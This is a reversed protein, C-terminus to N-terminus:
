RVSRRRRRYGATPAPGTRATSKSRSGIAWRRCGASSSTTTAPKGASWSGRSGQRRISAPLDTSPLGPRTSRTVAVMSGTMDGYWKYVWFAGTPEADLAQGRGGAKPAILDSLRGPKHWFALDATDVKARELRAVFRALAGPVGVDRPSAYENISIPLPGIGLDTEMQRYAAVHLALDNEYRPDREHWSVIDPLTGSAKARELFARMWAENWRSASPGMIPRTGDTARIARFTRAWIDNFDGWSPQWDWDPENWIEYAYINPPDAAVTARVMRDVADFWFADGRWIYPFSAFTDPMRITVSAGFRAAIPAVVLADGVPTTEGNPLQQGGPAM